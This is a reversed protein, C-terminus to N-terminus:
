ESRDAASRRAQAFLQRAFAVGRERGKSTVRVRRGLWELLRCGEGADVLEIHAQVKGFDPILVQRIFYTQGARLELHMVSLNEAKSWLLYRGPTLDAVAYSRGQTVGILEHDAFTWVQEEVGLRSTRLLCIRALTPELELSPEGEAFTEVYGGARAPDIVGFLSALLAAAFLIVSIRQLGFIM